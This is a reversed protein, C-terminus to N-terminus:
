RLGAAGARQILELGEGSTWCRTQAGEPRQSSDEAKRRERSTQLEGSGGYSGDSLRGMAESCWVKGSKTGLVAPAEPLQILATQSKGCGGSRRGDEM